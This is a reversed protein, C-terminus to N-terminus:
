QLHKIAIKWIFMGFLTLEEVVHDFNGYSSHSFCKRQIIKSLQAIWLHCSISLLQDMLLLANSLPNIQSTDDLSSLLDSKNGIRLMGDGSLSPPFTQNEHSFFEDLNGDWVKCVPYLQSFLQSNKKLIAIQSQHKASKKTKM